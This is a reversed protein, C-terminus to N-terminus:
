GRIELLKWPTDCVDCVPGSSKGVTAIVGGPFNRSQPLFLRPGFSTGECKCQKEWRSEVSRSEGTGMDIGMNEM